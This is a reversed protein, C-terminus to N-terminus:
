CRVAICAFGTGSIGLIMAVWDVIKLKRQINQRLYSKMNDNLFLMEM